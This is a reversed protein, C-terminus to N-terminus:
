SCTETYDLLSIQLSQVTLELLPVLHRAHEESPDGERLFTDLEETDTRLAEILEVLIECYGAGEDFRVSLALEAQLSHLTMSRGLHDAMVAGGAGDYTLTFAEACTEQNADSEQLQRLLEEESAQDLDTREYSGLLEVCERAISPWLDDRAGGNDTRRASDTTGCAALLAAFAATQWMKM